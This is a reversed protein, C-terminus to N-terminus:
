EVITVMGIMDPLHYSCVLDYLGPEVEGAIPEGNFEDRPPIDVIVITGVITFNHLTEDANVITIGQSASATFCSPVFANKELRITFAVGEGTLDVCNAGGDSPPTAGTAGTGRTSGTAATVGPGDAEEGGDGGCATAILALVAGLVVLLKRM